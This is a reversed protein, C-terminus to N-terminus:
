KVRGSVLIFYAAVNGAFAWAYNSWVKRKKIKFAEQRYGNAYNENRMLSPKPYDLNEERPSAGSTAIAPVLALISGVFLGTLLTGSGAGSYGRYYRRADSRGAETADDENELNNSSVSPKIATEILQGNNASNKPKDDRFLQSNGNEYKIFVVESKLISNVPGELNNFNKYKLETLNIELVKGIIKEGNKKTIIDQANGISAYLFILNFFLSSLLNKM